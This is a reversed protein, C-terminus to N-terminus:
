VNVLKELLINMLKKFRHKSNNGFYKEIQSETMTRNLDNEKSTYLRINAILSNDDAWDMYIQVEYPYEHDRIIFNIISIGVDDSLQRKLCYCTKNFDDPNELDKLIQQIMKAIFEEDSSINYSDYDNIIQIYDFIRM